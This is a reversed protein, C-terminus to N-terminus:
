KYVEVVEELSVWQLTEGDYVDKTVNQLVELWESDVILSIKYTKV